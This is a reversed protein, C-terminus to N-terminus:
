PRIPELLRHPTLLAASVPDTARAPLGPGPLIMTDAVAVAAGCAECRGDVTLPGEDAVHCYRRRPGDPAYYDDGWSTLTRLAPWLALGKETLEYEDRKGPGAVKALVGADVLAKLRETLVARPIDLHAVFDRFRRVGFFADRVILLTWREGVIELTRALSCPQGLYDHPLAM